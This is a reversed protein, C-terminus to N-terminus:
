MMRCGSPAAKALLPLAALYCPARQEQPLVDHCIEWDALQQESAYPREDRADSTRHSQEM